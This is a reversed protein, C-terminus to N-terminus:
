YTCLELGLSMPQSMPIHILDHDAVYKALWKMDAESDGKGVGLFCVLGKSIESILKNDVSLAANEVRQVLAKM